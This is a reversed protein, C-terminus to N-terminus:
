ILLCGKKSLTLGFFLGAMFILLMYFWFEKSDKLEKNMTKM